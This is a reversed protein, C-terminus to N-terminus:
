HCGQKFFCDVLRSGALLDAVGGCSFREAVFTRCLEELFERLENERLALAGSIIGAEDKAGEEYSTLRGSVMDRIVSARTQGARRDLTTDSTVALLALLARTGATNE